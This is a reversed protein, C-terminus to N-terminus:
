NGFHWDCCVSIDNRPYPNAKHSLPYYWIHCFAGACFGLELKVSELLYCILFVVIAISFFSFLFDKKQRQRYYILRIIIGIIAFNFIFRIVLELLDETDILHMGLFKVDNISMLISLILANM